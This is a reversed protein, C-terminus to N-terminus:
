FPRAFSFGLLTLTNVGQFIGVGVFMRVANLDATLRAMMDGVRHNDYYHSDLKTFHNFLDHRIDFQIDWSAGLITRRVTILIIAALGIVGLLGLVYQWVNSMTMTGDALADIASGTIIPALTATFSSIIILVVGLGFQWPYRKLYAFIDRFAQM